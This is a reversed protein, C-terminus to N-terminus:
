QIKLYYDMGYNSDCATCCTGDTATSNQTRGELNAYIYTVNVGSQVCNYKMYANINIPPGSGSRTGSPDIIETSLFGATILCQAISPYGYNNYNFWGIGTGNYGCNSGTEIWNNYATNYMILATRIQSLDSIRRSDRAKGKFSQVGVFIISSLLSIIAIVVLMEVLTFGTLPRDKKTKIKKQEMYIINM